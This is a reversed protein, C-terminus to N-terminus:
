PSQYEFQLSTSVCVLNNDCTSNNLATLTKTDFDLTKKIKWFFKRHKGIKWNEMSIM